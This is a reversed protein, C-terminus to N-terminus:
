EDPVTYSDDVVKNDLNTQQPIKRQTPDTRHKAHIVGEGAATRSPVHGRLVFPRDDSPMAHDIPIFLPNVPFRQLQPM